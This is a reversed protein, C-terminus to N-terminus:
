SQGYNLSKAFTLFSEIEDRTISQTSVLTFDFLCNNKKFVVFLLQFAQGDVTANVHSFLAETNAIIIRDRQIFKIKRAGLLLDRTLNKLSAQRTGQCSSTISVTSGSPLKFAKDSEGHSEIEKWENPTSFSIDKAHKLGSSTLLSCQPLISFM